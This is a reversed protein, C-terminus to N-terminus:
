FIAAFSLGRMLRACPLQADRRPVAFQPCGSLFQV